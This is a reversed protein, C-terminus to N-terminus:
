MNQIHIYINIICTTNIMLIKTAGMSVVNNHRLVKDALYPYIRREADLAQRGFVSIQPEGVVNVPQSTVFLFQLCQGFTQICGGSLIAHLYISIFGFHHCAVGVADLIVDIYINNMVSGSPGM